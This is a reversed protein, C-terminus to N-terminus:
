CGYDDDNDDSRFCILIVLAVFAVAFIVISWAKELMVPEMFIGSPCM